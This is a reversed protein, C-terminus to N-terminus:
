GRPVTRGGLAEIAAKGEASFRSIWAAPDIGHSRWWDANNHKHLSDGTSQDSHHYECLPVTLYDSIKRGSTRPFLERVHHARVPYKTDWFFECRYEQCCVLCSQERVRKLHKEDRAPKKSVRSRTGSDRKPAKKRLM